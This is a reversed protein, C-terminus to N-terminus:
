RGADGEKSFYKLYSLSDTVNLFGGAWGTKINVYYKEADCKTKNRFLYWVMHDADKDGSSIVWNLYM